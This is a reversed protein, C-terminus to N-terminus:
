TKKEEGFLEHLTFGLANAIKWATAITPNVTGNEVQSLMGKSVGSRDSLESLSINKNIRYAKVVKGIEPPKSVNAM